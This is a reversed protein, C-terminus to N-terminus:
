HRALLLVALAVILLLAAGLAPARVRWARAEPRGLVGPGAAARRPQEAGYPPWDGAGLSPEAMAAETRARDLAARAAGDSLTEYAAAIEKFRAEAGRRGRNVDPHYRKALLLYAGHIEEASAAPSVGLIDYADRPGTATAM